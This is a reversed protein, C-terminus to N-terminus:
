ATHVATKKTNATTNSVFEEIFAEEAKQVEHNYEEQRKEKMKDISSKETKAILVEQLKEQEKVRLEAIIQQTRKINAAQNRFFGEYLHLTSIDCGDAKQAELKDAAEKYDTEYQDLRQQQLDIRHLIERHETKLNQVVQEKYDLVKDLSFQFKKM